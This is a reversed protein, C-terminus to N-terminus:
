QYKFMEGHGSDVGIETMVQDKFLDFLDVPTADKIIVDDTKHLINIIQDEPLNDM